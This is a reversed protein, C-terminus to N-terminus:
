AILHHKKRDLTQSVKTIRNNLKNLNMYRFKNKFTTLVVVGNPLSLKTGKLPIVFARSNCSKLLGFIKNFNAFTSANYVRERITMENSDM